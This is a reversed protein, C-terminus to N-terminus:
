ALFGAPGKLITLSGMMTMSGFAFLLAFKQPAIIFVPLFSFSMTILMLGLIFVGAFQALKAPSMALAGLSSIGSSASNLAGKAGSAAKSAPQAAKEKAVKAKESALQQGKKLHEQGKSGADKALQQAAM